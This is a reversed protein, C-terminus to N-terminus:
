HAKNHGEPFTHHDSEFKSHLKSQFNSIKDITEKDVQIAGNQITLNNFKLYSGIDIAIETLHQCSIKPWCFMKPKAKRFFYLDEGYVGHKFEFWPRETRKFVDSKIAVCGFGAGEVPFARELPFGAAMLFKDSDKDYKHYVHPVFPPTKWTYLGTVAEMEPHQEFASVMLQILSAPFLMDTDMWVTLDYGQKLADDALHERMHDIWGEGNFLIGLEDSRNDQKQWVYFSAVVELLSKVFKPNLGPHNNPLCIAIRM